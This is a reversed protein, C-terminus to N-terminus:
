NNKGEKLLPIHTTINRMGIIGRWDIEPYNMRLTEPVEKIAEAIIELAKVTAFVKEDNGIFEEYSVNETFSNILASMKLIDKLFHIYTRDSM